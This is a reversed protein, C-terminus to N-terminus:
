TVGMVPAASQKNQQFRGCVSCGYAAFIGSNAAPM